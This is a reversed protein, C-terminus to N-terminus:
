ACSDSVHVYCGCLVTAYLVFERWEAVLKGIYAEWQGEQLQIAQDIWVQKLMGMHVDPAFFLVMSTFRRWFSDRVGKDGSIHLDSKLEKYIPQDRNLKAYPQGAFNIFREHVLGHM